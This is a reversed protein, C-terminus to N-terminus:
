GAPRLDAIVPLDFPRGSRRSFFLIELAEIEGSDPNMRAVVDDGLETSEQEEYPPRKSIYLIDAQEDYEFTLKGDM